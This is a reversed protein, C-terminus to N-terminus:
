KKPVFKVNAVRLSQKIVLELTELEEYTLYIESEGGLKNKYKLCFLNDGIDARIQRITINEM